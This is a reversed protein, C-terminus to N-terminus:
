LILINQGPIVKLYMIESHPELKSQKRTNTKLSIASGGLEGCTSRYGATKRRKNREDGIRLDGLLM